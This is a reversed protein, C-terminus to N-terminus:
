HPEAGPPRVSLDYVGNQYVAWVRKSDAAQKKIDSPAFVLPGKRYQKMAPLFETPYWQENALASGKDGQAQGSTHIANPVDITFNAYQMALNANTVLGGAACAM